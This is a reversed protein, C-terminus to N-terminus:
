SDFIEFIPLCDVNASFLEKKERKVPKLPPIFLKKRKLVTVLPCFKQFSFLSM